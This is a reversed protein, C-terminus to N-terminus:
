NEVMAMLQKKEDDEKQSVNGTSKAKNEFDKALNKIKTATESKTQINPRTTQRKVKRDCKQNRIKEGPSFKISPKRKRSGNATESTHKGDHDSTHSIDLDLESDSNLITRDSGCPQANMEKATVGQERIFEKVIPAITQLDIPSESPFSASLHLEDLSVIIPVNKDLDFLVAKPQAHVNDPKAAFFFICPTNMFTVPTKAVFKVKGVSCSAYLTFGDGQLLCHLTKKGTFELLLKPTDPSDAASDRKFTYVLLSYWDIEWLNESLLSCSEDDFM